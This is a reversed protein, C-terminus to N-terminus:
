FHIEILTQEARCPTAPYHFYDWTNSPGQVRASDLLAEFSPERLNRCTTCDGLLGRIPLPPMQKLDHPHGSNAWLITTVIKCTFHLPTDGSKTVLTVQKQFISVGPIDM